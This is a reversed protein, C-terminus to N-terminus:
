TRCHMARPSGLGAPHKQQTNVIDATDKPWEQRGTSRMQQHKCLIPPGQTQLM